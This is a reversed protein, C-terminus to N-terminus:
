WSWYTLLCIGFILWLMSVHLFKLLFLDIYGTNLLWCFDFHFSTSFCTYFFFCLFDFSFPMSTGSLSVILLAITTIYSKFPTFTQLPGLHVAILFNWQYISLRNQCQNLKLYFLLFATLYICLKPLVFQSHCLNLTRRLLYAALSPATETLHKFLKIWTPSTFAPTSQTALCPIVPCSANLPLCNKTIKKPGVTQNIKQNTLQNQHNKQKTWYWRM